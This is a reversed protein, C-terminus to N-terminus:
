HSNSLLSTMIYLVFITQSSVLEERFAKMCDDKDVHWGPHGHMRWGTDAAEIVDAIVALGVCPLQCVETPVGGKWIILM